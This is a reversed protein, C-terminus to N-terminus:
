NLIVTNSKRLRKEGKKWMQRNKVQMRSLWNVNSSHFMRVFYKEPVGCAHELNGLLCFVFWRIRYADLNSNWVILILLDGSSFVLSDCVSDFVFFRLIFGLIGFFGLIGSFVFIDFIWCVNFKWDLINGDLIDGYICDM